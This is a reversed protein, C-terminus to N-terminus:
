RRRSSRPRLTMRVTRANGAPDRVTASLRLTLRGKRALQRRLAKPLRLRVTRRANARVAFSKAGLRTRPQGALTGSVDFGNANSVRVALPGRAPIRKSALALTVLTKAGFAAPSVQGARAGEGAGGGAGGEGAGSGAGGEGGGGSGPPPPFLVDECETLTDIGPPDATVSDTETNCDATDPGGDRVHLTDRGEGANLVDAGGRGELTDDGEATTLVNPGDDGRLTAGVSVEATANELGVLTDSGAGTDQPAEIALDITAPQGATSIAVTDTGTGGDAIDNGAGPVLSDGGGAGLLTDGGTGGALFDPGEGGEIRDIGGHGLFVIGETLPGGTGQDGRASLEDDGAGGFGSLNEVGNPFIDADRVSEGVANANIGGTGFVIRGSDDGTGVQLTSMFGGNLNVFIEIEKTGGGSDSGDQPDPGPVFDDAGAIVVNQARGGSGTVSIAGTNTVSAPGGPGTCTVPNLGRAVKIEGSEVRLRADDGDAGLAVTL